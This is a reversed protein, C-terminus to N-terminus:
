PICAVLFHIWLTYLISLTLSAEILTSISLYRLSDADVLRVESHSSAPVTTLVIYHNLLKAADVTLRIHVWQALLVGKSRAEPTDVSDLGVIFQYHSIIASAASTFEYSIARLSPTSSAKRLSCAM